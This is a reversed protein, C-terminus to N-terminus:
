PLRRFGASSRPIVTIVKGAENLRVRAAEGVYETIGGPRQVIQSPNRVADLIARPSVGVGERSIAQNLGHRTYGTIKGGVTGGERAALGAEAKAEGAGGLAECLDALAPAMCAGWYAIAILAMQGMAHSSEAAKADDFKRSELYWAEGLEYREILIDRYDVIYLYRDLRTRLSRRLSANFYFKFSKGWPLNIVGGLKYKHHWWPQYLHRPYHIPFSSIESGGGSGDGGEEGGTPKPIIPDYGGSGRAYRESDPRHIPKKGRPTKTKKVQKKHILPPVVGFVDGPPMGSTPPPDFTFFADPGLDRANSTRKKDFSASEWGGGTGMRAFGM